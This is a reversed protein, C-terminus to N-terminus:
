YMHLAAESQGPLIHATEASALIMGNGSAFAFKSAARIM